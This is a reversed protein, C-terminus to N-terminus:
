KIGRNTKEWLAYQKLLGADAPNQTEDASGSALRNLEKTAKADGSSALQALKDVAVFAKPPIPEETRRNNQDVLPQGIFQRYLDKLVYEDNSEKHPRGTAQEAFTRDNSFAPKQGDKRVAQKVLSDAETEQPKGAGPQSQIDALTSESEALRKTGSSAGYAPDGPGIETSVAGLVSNNKDLTMKSLLGLQRTNDGNTWWDKKAVIENYLKVEQENIQKGSNDYIISMKTVDRVLEAARAAESQLKKLAAIDTPPVKDIQDQLEILNQVNKATDLVKATQERIRTRDDPKVDPLFRRAAINQGSKSTDFIVGELPSVEKKHADAAIQAAKIHADASYKASSAALGAKYIELRRQARQNSADDIYKQVTLDNKVMEKQIEAKAAQGKILALQSDYSGLKADIENAVGQLYFGQMRARAETDSASQARQMDWLQRFGQAVELKKHMNAYQADINNKIAQNISDMGSTKIGKAGLFDHGFATILMAIQGTTGASEWLQAPNIKAAAYEKLAARYQAINAESEARANDAAAQEKTLFDKNAAAIKLRGEAGAALKQSEVDAARTKALEEETAASHFGAKIPAFQSEIDAQEGKLQKEVQTQPGKTILEHTAPNFGQVSVGGGAGVSLPLNSPPPQPPQIPSPTPEAASQSATAATPSGYGLLSAYDLGGENPNEPNAPPSSLNLLDIPSLPM